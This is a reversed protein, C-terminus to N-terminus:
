SANSSRTCPASLARSASGADSRRMPVRRRVRLLSVAVTAPPTAPNGDTDLSCDVVFTFPGTGFSAAPGDVVKDLRLSGSDFTNTAIISVPSAAVFPPLAVSSGSTDPELRGGVSVRWTTGAAGAGNTETVTCVAEDPIEVLNWTGGDSLDQTMPNGPGYGHAYVPQGAADVCTVTFTFPGYTIPNGDQDVASTDVAKRLTIAANGFFNEVTVLGIADQPGGVTATGIFQTTQGQDTETATCSAGVPLGDVETPAAGAVLNVVPLPTLPVNPTAPDLDDDYTCVLQVPFTQGAHDAANPGSLIKQLQIPGTPYTVGVRRGETAPVLVSAAAALEGPGPDSVAFGSTAVTNWAVPFSTNALGSPTTRTQFQISLADAPMFLAGGQFTVVFKLSRVASLNTTQALPTWTTPACAGLDSGATCATSSPSTFTELVAGAPANLLQIGNVFTPDWETGRPLNVVVGTDGTVPLSDIATLSTLPLTGANTVTFRWTETDGPRTVPVCPSRYFGAADAAGTCDFGAADSIVDPVGAVGHPADAKVYKITSLAPVDLPSVVSDDKCFGVGPVDSAPDDEFTTSCGPGSWTGDPAQTIGDFPVDGIDVVAWNQLQDAPTVGPALMLNITITYTQGPELVSGAPMRFFIESGTPTQPTYGDVTVGAPDTPLPTGHPPTPAAGTLAFSWPVTTPDADPDFVLQPRGDAFTPLRDSFVPDTLPLEGNNTFTLTFPIVQGPAVDGNPTKTVAVSVPLHAYVYDDSASSNAVLQPEPGGIAVPVSVASATSTNVYTGLATEGPPLSQDTRTTQVTGGSRYDTRRVVRFPVQINPNAPNEWGRGDAQRFTLQVGHIAGPNAAAAGDIFATAAAISQDALATSTMCTWTGGVAGPATDGNVPVSGTPGTPSTIAFPPAAADTAVNAATFAGGTLYCAQVRGTPATFATWSPDMGVLDFANWFTPDDDQLTLSETRVSGTPQGGITVTVPSFDGEEQSAPVVSKSSRVSFTPAAIQITADDQACAYRADEAPPPCATAPDVPDVDAVIGQALNHIPSDDSTVATDTGRWFPRLRVDFVITGAAGAAVRGDFAVQVSTVDCPMTADTLALAQARTYVRSTGDPCFLTVTTSTAGAPVTIAAFGSLAFADFAGHEDPNATSASPSPDQIILQDIKAPTTNRTTVTIRSTPYAGAGTDVPVSVPGGSWSKTTTTTIPPNWIIVDDSDQSSLPDGTEPYGTVGVTNRVVGEEGAINYVDGALVASGDSRKTDRVQWVLVVPRRDFSRAVGTGVAPADPDDATPGVRTPSEALTIRVGTTSAQEAATLAIAPMQGDCGAPCPSNTAPVWATGNWLEVATVQDYKILPDTAPTIAQIQTLNFADYVSDAIPTGAPDAVDTIEVRQLNSYGGTSWSLTSPITDGSRAIVCKPEDSTCASSSTGFAKDVLDPGVGPQVPVITIDDCGPDSTAGAVGPTPSTASTAACNTLTTNETGSWAPNTYRGADDARLEANFNPAFDTGPAFGGADCGAQSSDYDYVFRVGGAAATVDAPVSTSFVTPGAVPGALTLWTASATDYYEVTLTACAPVPTRAIQTLDFANWWANGAVPDQPDQLVVRNADGTSGEPTAPPNPRENLGGELGVTVSEGPVGLIQAPRVTKRMYTDLVEGYVDLDDHANATGTQGLNEGVVQIENDVTVPLSAPDLDPDTVVDFVVTTECGTGISGTFVVDFSTVSAPDLAGLDPTAGSAFQVTVDGGPTHLVVSGATAGCPYPIGATFGGFTYQAPFSGSSPEHITLSEIPFPSQNSAGLTVHSPEGAVVVQPSFSKSAGVEVQNQQITLHADVDDTAPQPADPHTVQSQVTNDVVTGDPLAAGDDTLALDLAVSGSAGPPIEGTFTVRTGRVTAPDIGAAALDGGPVTVWAGNVFVEYTTGTAGQPPTVAGFGTFGVYEFPNPSAAPDVPDQIALSAVTANSDNSGGLHATVPAGPTALLSTPDLSKTATTGLSLPIQPTVGVQDHVDVFNTGEIVADNFVEVGNADYSADQPLRATIQVIGTTNDLIGQTGDGLDTTWTVTVGNGSTAVTGTSSGAGLVASVLEFPAPVTDSLVAGRCGNDTIASCGVTLTYTFTQGPAVESVSAQKTLTAVATVDAPPPDPLAQAASPVLAALLLSVIAAYAAWRRKIM